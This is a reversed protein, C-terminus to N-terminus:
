ISFTPAPLGRGYLEVFRRFQRARRQNYLSLHFPATVNELGWGETLDHRVHYDVVVVGQVPTGATWEGFKAFHAKAFREMALKAATAYTRADVQISMRENKRNLAVSIDAVICGQLGTRELQRAAYKIREELMDYSKLRKVAIGYAQGNLQCRIDPEAFSPQLGANACVAAVHLECQADRGKSEHPSDQPLAADKVLTHLKSRFEESSRDSNVHDFIFALLQLDRVAELVIEFDTCEPGVSGKKHSGDRNTVARQMRDLRSSPKVQVGAASICGIVYEAFQALTRRNRMFM